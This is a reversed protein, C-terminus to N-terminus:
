RSGTNKQLTVSLPPLRVEIRLVKKLVLGNETRLAVPRLRASDDVHKAKRDSRPDEIHGAALPPVRVQQRFGAEINVPEVIRLMQKRNGGLAAYRRAESVSLAVHPLQRAFPRAPEVRDDIQERREAKEHIR